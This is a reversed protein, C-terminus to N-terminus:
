RPSRCDRSAPRSRLSWGLRSLVALLWEGSLDALSERAAKALRKRLADTPRGDKVAVSLPMLKEIIERDPARELVASIHAALRRPSAFTSLLSNGSTLGRTRLEDYLVRGFADGLKKLAKPPLEEVFLEVLLNKATM